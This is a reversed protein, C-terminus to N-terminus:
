EPTEEGDNFMDLENVDVENAIQKHHAKVQALVDRRTMPNDIVIEGESNRRPLMWNNEMSVMESLQSAQLLFQVALFQRRAEESVAERQIRVSKRTQDELNSFALELRNVEDDGGVNRAKQTLNVTTLKLQPKGM